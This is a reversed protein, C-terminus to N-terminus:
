KQYEDDFDIEYVKVTRGNKTSEVGKYTVWVYSGQPIKAFQRDISASGFIVWGKGSPDVVVYRNTEGFNGIFTSTSIYEGELTAGEALDKNWITTEINNNNNNASKRM